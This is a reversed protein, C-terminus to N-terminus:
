PAQNRVNITTGMVYRMRRDPAPNPGANINAGNFVITQPQLTLRDQDSQVLLSVRLGIVLNWQNAPVQAATVYATAGRLRGNADVGNVGQSLGYQITMGQLGAVLPQAIAGGPNNNDTCLLARGQPPNAPSLSLTIDAMQNAPIIRGLCTTVSGDDAGQYRLRIADSGNITGGAVVQGAAFIGTVRPFGRANIATSWVTGGKDWPYTIYGGMRFYRSLLAMAMRGDEQMRSAAQQIRASQQTSIFVQIVGLMVVLGLTLAVMIEVLTYGSQIAFGPRSGVSPRPSLYVGLM